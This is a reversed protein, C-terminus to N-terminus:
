SYKKKQSIWISGCITLISSLFLISNQLSWLLARQNVEVNDYFLIIFFCSFFYLLYGSVLWFDFQLLLNLENVNRILHEFYLLAYIVISLYTIAYCLTNIRFVGHFLVDYRIFLLVNALLVINVVIQRTRNVLLSKFYWSLLCLTIFFFINYIMNNAMANTTFVGFSIFPVALLYYVFLIKKIRPLSKNLMILFAITYVLYSFPELIDKFVERLNHAKFCNIIRKGSKLSLATHV